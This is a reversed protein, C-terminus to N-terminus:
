RPFDMKIDIYNILYSSFDKGKTYIIQKIELICKFSNDPIGVGDILWNFHFFLIFTEM